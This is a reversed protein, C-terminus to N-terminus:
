VGFHEGVRALEEADILGQEAPLGLPDGLSEAGSELVVLAIEEVTELGLEAAVDRHAVGVVAGHLDLQARSAGIRVRPSPEVAGQQLLDRLVHWVDGFGVRRHPRSRDTGVAHLLDEAAGDDGRQGIQVLLAALPGLGPAEGRCRPPHQFGVPVPREEM